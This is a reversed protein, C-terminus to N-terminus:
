IRDSESDQFPLCKLLTAVRNIREHLEEVNWIAEDMPEFSYRGSLIAM